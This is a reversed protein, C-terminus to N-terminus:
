FQHLVSRIRARPFSHHPVNQCRICPMSLPNAVSGTLSSSHVCMPKSESSTYKLLIDDPVKLLVNLNTQPEYRFPEVRVEGKESKTDHIVSLSKGARAWSRASRIELGPVELNSPLASKVPFVEGTRTDIGLGRSKPAAIPEGRDEATHENNLCSIAATSLSIRLKKQYRDAINSFSTVLSTSLKQSTGEKDLFGGLMHLEMEVPENDEPSAGEIRLAPLSATRRGFGLSPLFHQEDDDKEEELVPEDEDDMFFGYDDDGDQQQENHHHGLHKQVMADLCSDYGAQDVHALSVLPVSGSKKVSRLAVVHCTTAEASVVIDAQLATAHAVEGQLVNLCKSSSVKELIIDDMDNDQTTVVKAMFEETRSVVRPIRSLYTDLSCPATGTRPLYLRDAPAKADAIYLASPELRSDDEDLQVCSATRGRM